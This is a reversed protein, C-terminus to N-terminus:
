FNYGVRFLFQPTVPIHRNALMDYMLSMKTGKTFKTKINIKKSLGILGSPQWQNYEQLQNLNKFAANYNMEYGGSLFFQKKLKWDVYSRLGIGQHTISLHNFSGLGMKYSAGIGVISKDNLKYGASLGIDATTPLLSNTKYFQFNNGLEIRQLFTKTKQSNPKFDPLETDSSGGGSKLVKDKLASLQSQADALNQRIQDAANPGGAAIQSQILANVSARTQLGSLNTTNASAGPMRFLSALMSNDQLFKNFAPIRNLVRLAVEEAKKEDTFLQKYNRITELYYYSDKDIRQLYKSKGIYQISQGILQRKREKIFQEMADVQDQQKEYESVKRKANSLPQIIKSDLKDKQQDLYHITNTLKDRYEDYQKRQENYLAEGEKYKELAKAFTLQNNNFLRQSVEPNVQLLLAHIKEEWKALRTLTKETKNRIRSTYKDVKADLQKIYKTPIQQLSTLASDVKATQRLQTDRQATATQVVCVLLIWIFLRIAKM